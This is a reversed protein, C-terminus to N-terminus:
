GRPGGQRSAATVAGQVSERVLRQLNRLVQSEAVLAIPPVPPSGPASSRFAFILVPFRGVPTDTVAATIDVSDVTLVDVTADVPGGPVEQYPLEWRGFPNGASPGFPDKPMSADTM